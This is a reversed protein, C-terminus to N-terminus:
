HLFIDEEWEPGVLKMHFEIEKLWTGSSIKGNNLRNM